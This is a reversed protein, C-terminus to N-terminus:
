RLSLAARAAATLRGMRAPLASGAATAAGRGDPRSERIRGAEGPGWGGGSTM